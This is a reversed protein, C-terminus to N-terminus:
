CATFGTTTRKKQQGNQLAAVWPPAAAAAPPSLFLPTLTHDLGFTPCSSSAVGGPRWRGSEGAAPAAAAAALRRLLSLSLYLSLCRRRRPAAAAGPPSGHAAPASGCTSARPKRERAERPLGGGAVRPPRSSLVRRGAAVAAWGPFCPHLRSPLISSSAFRFRDPLRLPGRACSQGTSWSCGQSNDEAPISRLYAASLARPSFSPFTASSLARARACSLPLSPLPRVVLRNPLSARLPNTSRPLSASPSHDLRNSATNNDKLPLTCPQQPSPAHLLYLAPRRRRGRRRGFRNPAGRCSARRRNKKRRRRAASALLCV